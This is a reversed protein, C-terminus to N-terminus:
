RMPFVIKRYPPLCHRDVLVIEDVSDGDGDALFLDPVDDTCLSLDDILVASSIRSASSTKGLAIWLLLSERNLEFDYGSLISVVDLAGDGDVDGGATREPFGPPRDTDVIEFYLGEDIDLEVRSIVVDDLDLQTGLLIGEGGDGMAVGEGAILWDTFYLDDGDLVFLYASEDDSVVHTRVLRDDSTTACGSAILTGFDGLEEEDLENGELDFVGHDYSEFFLLIRDDFPCAGAAVALQPVPTPEALPIPDIAGTAAASYWSEATVVMVRDPPIRVLRGDPQPISYATGCEFRAGTCFRLALGAGEYSLIALGETDTFKGAVVDAIEGLPEDSIAPPRLFGSARQPNFDAWRVRLDVVFPGPVPDPAVPIAIQGSADSRDSDPHAGRPGAVVWEVRINPAPNGYADYIGIGLPDLPQGVVGSLVVEDLPELYVVPELVLELVTSEDLMEANACGILIRDDERDIAEALFVHARDRTLDGLFAEDSRLVIERGTSVPLVDFDLRSFALDDCDFPAAVPPELARIEIRAVRERYGEPVVLSLELESGSCSMLLLM